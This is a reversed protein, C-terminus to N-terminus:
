RKTGNRSCTDCGLDLDKVNLALLLSLLIHFYYEGYCIRSISRLFLVVRILM